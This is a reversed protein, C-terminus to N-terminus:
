ARISCSCRSVPAAAPGPGDDEHLPAAYSPISPNPEELSQHTLFSFSRILHHYEMIAVILPFFLFSFIRHNMHNYLKVIQKLRPKLIIYVKM